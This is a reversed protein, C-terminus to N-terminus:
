LRQKEVSVSALSYEGPKLFTIRQISQGEELRVGGTLFLAAIGYLVGASIVSLITLKAAKVNKTLVSSLKEVIVDSFFVLLVSSILICFFPTYDPKEWRGSLVTRGFFPVNIVTVALVEFILIFGPIRKEKKEFLFLIIFAALAAIIGGVSIFNSIQM